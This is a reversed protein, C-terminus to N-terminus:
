NKHRIDNVAKNSLANQRKAQAEAAAQVRDTHEHAAQVSGSATVMQSPAAGHFFHKSRLVSATTMTAGIAFVAGAVLAVKQVSTLSHGKSM